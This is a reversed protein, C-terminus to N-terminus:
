RTVRWLVGFWGRVAVHEHLSVKSVCRRGRLLAGRHLRRQQSVRPGGDGRRRRTERCRVSDDRLRWLHAFLAFLVARGRVPHGLQLWLGWVPPHDPRLVSRGQLRRQQQLVGAPLPQRRLM